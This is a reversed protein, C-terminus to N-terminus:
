LRELYQIINDQLDRYPKSSGTFGNMLISFVIPDGSHTFVYGSLTSVGSLSGTKARVSSPLARDTITGNPGGVPLTNIFIDRVAPQHYAWSLL